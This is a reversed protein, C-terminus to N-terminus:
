SALRTTAILTENVRGVQRPDMGIAPRAFDQLLPDIRAGSFSDYFESWGVIGEDTSLKHYACDRYGGDAHFTEAHVIKMPDSEERAARAAGGAAEEGRQLVRRTRGAGAGAAAGGARRAGAAPHATHAAPARLTSM